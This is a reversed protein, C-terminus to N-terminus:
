PSRHEKVGRAQSQLGLGRGLPMGRCCSVYRHFSQRQARRLPPPTPPPSPSLMAGKGERTPTRLSSGRSPNAAVRPLSLYGAHRDRERTVRGGRRARGEGGRQEQHQTPAHGRQSSMTRCARLGSKLLQMGARDHLAPSPHSRRSPTWATVLTLAAGSQQCCTSTFPRM